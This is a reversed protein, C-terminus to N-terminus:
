PPLPPPGAMLTPAIRSMEASIESVVQQIFPVIEWVLVPKNGGSPDTLVTVAKPVRRGLSRTRVGANGYMYFLEAVWAGSVTGLLKQFVESGAPYTGSVDIIGEHDSVVSRLLSLTEENTVFADVLFRINRQANPFNQAHLNFRDWLHEDANNRKLM